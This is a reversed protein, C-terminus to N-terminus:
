LAVSLEEEGWLMTGGGEGLVVGLANDERGRWLRRWLAEKGRWLRRGLADFRRWGGGEGLVVGLADFM